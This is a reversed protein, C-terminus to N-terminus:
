FINMVSYFHSCFKVSNAAHQQLQETCNICHPIKVLAHFCIVSVVTFNQSIQAFDTSYKYQIVCENGTQKNTKMKFLMMTTTRNSLRTQSKTVGHVAARWTERDKVMEQLKSLNMDM